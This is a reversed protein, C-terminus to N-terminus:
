WRDRGPGRVSCEPFSNARIGTAFGRLHSGAM